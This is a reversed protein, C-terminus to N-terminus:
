KLLKAFRGHVKWIEIEEPCFFQCRGCGFCNSPRKEEPIEALEARVEEEKGDLFDNYLRMMTRVDIGLGCKGDCAGCDTCNVKENEFFM